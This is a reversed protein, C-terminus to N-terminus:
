IIEEIKKICEDYMNGYLREKMAMAKVNEILDPPIVGRNTNNYEVCYEYIEKATKMEKITLKFQISFPLEASGDNETSNM